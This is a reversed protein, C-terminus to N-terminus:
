KMIGHKRLVDEFRLLRPPQAAKVKDPDTSASQRLTYKALTKCDECCYLRAPNDPRFTKGCRPNKCLRETM